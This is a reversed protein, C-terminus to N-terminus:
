LAGGLIYLWIKFGITTGIAIGAAIMLAEVSRSIGSLLDGALTDRIANTIVLGPVLLMISGIIITDVNFSPYFHSIVIAVSAALLGGCVNSFFSNVQYKNFLRIILSIVIGIFVSVIFDRIAGGFLLTFFGASLGSMFTTMEDSYRPLTDIYKLENRIDDMSLAKTYVSRSLDNVLSVKKLDVTRYKIRRVVTITESNENIISIVIITPTVFNEVTKINYAECIKSITEEVRYTEGGNELIIKGADAAIHVINDTYM